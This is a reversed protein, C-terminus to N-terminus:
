STPSARKASFKGNDGAQEITGNIADGDLTGRFINYREKTVTVKITITNGQVTGELPFDSRATKVTGKLANGTQEVVWQENVVRGSMHQINVDWTGRLPATNQARAGLTTTAVALLVAVMPGLTKLM